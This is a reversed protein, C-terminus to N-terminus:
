KHCSECKTNLPKYRVVKTGNRDEPKHCGSCPVYKHGGKLSFRADEEHDFKEALWDVPTHCRSCDNKNETNIFQGQHKDTHCKVCEKAVGKFAWNGSDDTHHCNNCGTTTHRGELAFGTKSHDFTIEHWSAVSHCYACQDGKIKQNNVFRTTQGKHVDEHCNICQHSKFQFQITKVRNHASIITKHCALCPVALHSGQLPFDSQRHNEISFLSPNFGNVTHCEECAGKQKRGTFQGRHFDSHCDSCNQFRAIRLPQGPKHCSECSLYAHKGKLPYRTKNHNFSNKNYNQWGSTNHCQTCNGGFKNNHVDKHCDTCMNHKVHAFRIFSDDDKYKQDRV